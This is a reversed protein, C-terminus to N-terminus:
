GRTTRITKDWMPLTFRGFRIMDTRRATEYCMERGKEDYLEDLTLTQAAYAPVGARSRLANIGALAETYRSNGVAPPDSRCPQSYTEALRFIM